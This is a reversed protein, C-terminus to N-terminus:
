RRSGGGGWAVDIGIFVMMTNSVEKFHLYLLMFILMLSLPLVVQLTQMASQQQEYSGAFSYSVGSPLNLEGRRQAEVLFERAAEVADVESYGPGAGFTVYATLFTNESRIM